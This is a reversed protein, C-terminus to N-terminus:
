GCEEDRRVVSVRLTVLKDRVPKRERIPRPWSTVCPVELITTTTILADYIM